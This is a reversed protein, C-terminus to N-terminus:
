RRRLFESSAYVPARRYAEELEEPTPLGEEFEIGFRRGLAEVLLRGMEEPGARAGEEAVTAVGSELSSPALKISGHHLVRGNKRRQASGVGKRGSWAIDLDTSQHFCMGTDRRDSVLKAEARLSSEIGLQALADSIAAHVRRYSETVPGQYLEHELPASISFTLEETHHIAGGGTIRRVVTSAADVAPVDAYRQFYGLSLCDPKWTYLRLVPQSGGTTLLAEDLGMNFGPEADWSTILRWTPL